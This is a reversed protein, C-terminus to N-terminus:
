RPPKENAESARAPRATSSAAPASAHASEINATGRAGHHKSSNQARRALGVVRRQRTARVRGAPGPRSGGRRAAVRVGLRGAGGDPSGGRTLRVRDLPTRRARPPDGVSPDHRACLRPGRRPEATTSAGSTARRRSGRVHKVANTVSVCTRDIGTVALARDLLRGAPGVFPEGAVDERDGPQEGVLMLDADPGGQLPASGFTRRRAHAPDQRVARSPLAAGLLAAM